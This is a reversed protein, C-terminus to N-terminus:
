ASKAEEPEPVEYLGGPTAATQAMLELWQRNLPPREPTDFVFHLPINPSLWITERHDGPSAWSFTCYEGRRLKSVIVVKIHALARDDVPVPHRADGYYIIGM